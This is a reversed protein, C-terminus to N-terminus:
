RMIMCKEIKGTTEDVPFYLNDVSIEYLVYVNGNKDVKKEKSIYDLKEVGKKLFVPIFRGNEGDGEEHVAVQFYENGKQSIRGIIKISKKEM